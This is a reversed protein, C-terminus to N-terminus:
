ISMLVLQTRAYYQANVSSLCECFNLVWVRKIWLNKEVLAFTRLIALLYEILHPLKISYLKLCIASSLMRCTSEYIGAVTLEGGGTDEVM